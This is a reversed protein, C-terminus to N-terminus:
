KSCVDIFVSVIKKRCLYDNHNTSVATHGTYLHKLNM